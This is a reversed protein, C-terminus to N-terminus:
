RREEPLSEGQVFYAEAIMYEADAIQAVAECGLRRSSPWVEAM